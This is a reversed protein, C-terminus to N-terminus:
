LESVHFSVHRLVIKARIAVIEKALEPDKMARNVLQLGRNTVKRKKSSKTNMRVEERRAVM